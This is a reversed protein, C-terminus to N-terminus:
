PMNNLFNAAEQHGEERAVMAPTREYYDKLGLDAGRQILYELVDVDGVAAAEHLATTGPLWGIVVDDCEKADDNVDAGHRFQFEMMAYRKRKAAAGLAGLGNVRAGYQILLEAMEINDNGVAVCLAPYFDALLNINLDAGHELLFRTFELSGSSATMAVYGGTRDNQYNVDLGAPIFIRM